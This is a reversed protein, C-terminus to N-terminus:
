DDLLNIREKFDKSNFYDTEVIKPGITLKQHLLHAEERFEDESKTWNHVVSERSSDYTYNDTFIIGFEDFLFGEYDPNFVSNGLVLRHDYQIGFLDYITPAIDLPSSVKEFVQANQDNNWIVLPTKFCEKFEIGRSECLNRYDEKNEFQGKPFHDGYLIIVLDDLVDSNKYDILLQKLGRDLDMTKALYVKEHETIEPFRQEVLEFYRLQVENLTDKSYPQHATFTIWFSFYKEREYMIWKIHDIVYSDEVNDYANLGIADYFEYGLKPMLVTRNYYVGYNNHSAMSYYGNANFSNALTVPFTNEFYETSTIKGNNAPMLSTNAMFETDSTSGILLPSNYGKISIGNEKLRYLTPTLIPDIAFNNLSEAQILLLNKGSYIGSFENVQPKRNLDLIAEIQQEITVEPQVDIRQVKFDFERLLLGNLGFQSTFINTNDVNAYIVKADQLQAPKSMSAQLELHFSDYQAYALVIFLCLTLIQNLFKYEIKKSKDLKIALYLAFFPIIFFRLDGISLLEFASDAFKLMSSDLSLATTILGYQMFGKFYVSQMGFYISVVALLLFLITNRLIKPTSLLITNLTIVVILFAKLAFGSVPLHPYALSLYGLSFIVNIWLFSLNYKFRM